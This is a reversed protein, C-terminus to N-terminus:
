NMALSQPFFILEKYGATGLLRIKCYLSFSGPAVKAQGMLADAGLVGAVAKV